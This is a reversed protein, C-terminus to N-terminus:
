KIRDFHLQGFVEEAEEYSLDLSVFLVSTQDSGEIKELFGYEIQNDVTAEFSYYSPSEEPAAKLINVSYKASIEEIYSSFEGQTFFCGELLVADGRVVYIIGSEDDIKLRSHDAIDLSVEVGEDNNLFIEIFMRAECGSLFLVVFLPLVLQCKLKKM